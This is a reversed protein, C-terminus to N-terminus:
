VVHAGLPSNTNFVHIGPLEALSRHEDDTYFEREFKSFVRAVEAKDMGPRLNSTARKLPQQSCSVVLSVSALVICHVLRM